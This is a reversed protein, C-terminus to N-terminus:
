CYYGEIFTCYQSRMLVLLPISRILRSILRRVRATPQKGSPFLASINTHALSLCTEDEAQPSFAYRFMDKHRMLVNILGIQWRKRQRYLDRLNEPPQTWCIPDPLFDIKYPKGM